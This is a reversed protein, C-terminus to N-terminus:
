GGRPGPTEDHRLLGHRRWGTRLLWGRPEAIPIDEGPKMWGPRPPKWAGEWSDFFQASSFPDVVWERFREHTGHHRWNNIVYCLVNRVERPTRLVRSHYRDAFVKGKRKAIANLRRAMLSAFGQIGRALARTHRPECVLHVHDGQISYQNIAFEAKQCTRMARRIATYKKHNRLGAAEPLLKLTVHVPEKKGVRERRRHPVGSDKSRKRGAGARRGGHKGKETRKPTPLELQEGVRTSAKKRVVGMVNFQAYELVRSGSTAFRPM